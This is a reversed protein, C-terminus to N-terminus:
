QIEEEHTHLIPSEEERNSPQLVRERTIPGRDVRSEARVFKEKVRSNSSSQAAAEHRIRCEESHNRSALGRNVAVALLFSVGVAALQGYASDDDLRAVKGFLLCLLFVWPCVEPFGSVRVRANELIQHQKQKM